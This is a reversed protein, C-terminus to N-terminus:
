FPKLNSGDMLAKEIYGEKNALIFDLIYSVVKSAKSIRTCRPCPAYLIYVYSSEESWFHRCASNECQFETLYKNEDMNSRNITKQKRGLLDVVREDFSM